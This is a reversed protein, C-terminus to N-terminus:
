KILLAAVVASATNVSFSFVFVLIIKLSSNRSVSLSKTLKNDDGSTIQFLSLKNSKQAWSTMKLTLKSAVSRVVFFLSTIVPIMLMQLQQEKSKIYFSIVIVVLLPFVSTLTQDIFWEYKKYFTGVDFSNYSKNRANIWNKVHLFVEDAYHQTAGDVTVCTSGLEFDINDIENPSKSLAAQLFMFPNIPNSIRVTISLNNKTDGIMTELSWKFVIRDTIKDTEFTKKSFIEQVGDFHTQDNFSILFSFEDDSSDISKLKENITKILSKLSEIDCVYRDSYIKTIAGLKSKTISYPKGLVDLAKELDQTILNGM